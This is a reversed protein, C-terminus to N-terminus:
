LGQGTHLWLAPGAIQSRDRPSMTEQQNQAALELMELRGTTSGWVATQLRQVQQRQEVQGGAKPLREELLKGGGEGERGGRM